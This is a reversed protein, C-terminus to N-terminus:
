RTVRSAHISSGRRWDRRCGAAAAPGLLEVEVTELPKRRVHERFDRLEHERGAAGAAVDDIEAHAVGVQRRRLVDDVLDPLHRLVRARM